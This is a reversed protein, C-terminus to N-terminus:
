FGYNEFNIFLYVNMKLILLYYLGFFLFTIKGTCKICNTKLLTSEPDNIKMCKKENEYASICEELIEDDTKLPEKYTLKVWLFQALDSIISFVM